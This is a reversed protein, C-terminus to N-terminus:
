GLIIRALALVREPDITLVKLPSSPSGFINQRTADLM